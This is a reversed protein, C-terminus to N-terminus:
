FIKKYMKLTEKRAEEFLVIPKPYKINYKKYSNEWNIIDKPPIDKLEPIWKKIYECEKDYKETQRAPSFIRNYMQSDTGSGSVWQWGGNNNSSDYDILKSAFYKEGFRWDIRLEKILVSAVIMRCRNHMYGITNLQRMGADAIPIGMNGQCWKKFWTKNNDWELKKYKDKTFDNYLIIMYFDRWYLQKILDNKLGLQKKFEKYIERISYVNFKLYASLKTTCDKFPYDRDKNYNKFLKLNELIKKCNKRGGHVLVSNNPTYFNHYNQKYEYKLTHKKAIFNKINYSSPESVKLKKAKNYFPTFKVYNEGKGNLVKHLGTLLYDEECHFKVDYKECINIIEKEREKGKHSYDKNLYVNEIKDYTSLLKDFLDKVTTHFKFLRSGYKHLQEDLDDICEMMFQVCNDNKIKGNDLQDKDFLFIPIVTENEKSAKILTTNDVIRLDRTFLFLGYGM